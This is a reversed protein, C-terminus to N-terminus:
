NFNATISERKEDSITQQNNTRSGNRGWYYKSKIQEETEFSQYNKKCFEGITWRQTLISKEDLLVDSYKKISIKLEEFSSNKVGVRIGSLFGDIKKHDTLGCEKWYVLLNEAKTKFSDKKQEEKKPENGVKIFELCDGLLKNSKKQAEHTLVGNMSNTQNELIQFILNFILNQKLKEQKNM